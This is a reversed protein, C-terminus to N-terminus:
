TKKELLSPRLLISGKSVLGIKAANEVEMILLTSPITQQLKKLLWFFVTMTWGLNVIEMGSPLNQISYVGALEGYFDVM